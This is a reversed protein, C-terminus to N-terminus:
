HNIICGQAGGKHSECDLPSASMLASEGSLENIVHALCMLPFTRPTSLTYTLPSQGLKTSPLCM